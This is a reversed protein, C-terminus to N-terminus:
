VMVLGLLIVLKNIRYRRWFNKLVVSQRQGWNKLKIKWEEKM